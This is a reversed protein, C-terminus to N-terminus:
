KKFFRWQSLERCSLVKCPFIIANFFRQIANNKERESVLEDMSDSQFEEITEFDNDNM